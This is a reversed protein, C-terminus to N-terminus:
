RPPEWDPGGLALKINLDGIERRLADLKAVDDPSTPDGSIVGYYDHITGDSEVRGPVYRFHCGPFAAYIRTQQTSDPWQSATTGSM